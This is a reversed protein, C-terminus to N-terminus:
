CEPLNKAQRLILEHHLDKARSKLARFEADKRESIKKFKFEIIQDIKVLGVLQERTLKKSAEHFDKDSMNELTMWLKIAENTIPIEKTKKKRGM